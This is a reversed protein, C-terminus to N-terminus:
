KLELSKLYKVFETDHNALDSTLRASLKAGNGIDINQISTGLGHGWKRRIIANYIRMRKEVNDTAVFVIADTDFNNLQEQVANAIAGLIKSGNSSNFQLDEVPKGNVIKKFAVNIFRYTKGNFPYSGPEIHIEFTEGDIVGTGVLTEGRKEWKNKEFKSNLSEYFDEIWGGEDVIVQHWNVKGNKAAWHQKEGTIPYELGEVIESLKM